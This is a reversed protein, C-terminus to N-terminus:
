QLARARRRPARRRPGAAGRRPRVEAVQEQQATPPGALLKVGREALPKPIPRDAAPGAEHM